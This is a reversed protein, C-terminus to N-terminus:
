RKSGLGLIRQGEALSRPVFMKEADKEILEPEQVTRNQVKCGFHSVRLDDRLSAVTIKAARSELHVHLFASDADSMMEVHVIKINLLHTSSDLTVSKSFHSAKIVVWM